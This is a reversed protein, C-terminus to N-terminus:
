LLVTQRERDKRVSPIKVLNRLSRKFPNRKRPTASFSLKGNPFVDMMSLHIIRWRRVRNLEQNEADTTEIFTGTGPTTDHFHRSSMNEFWRCCQVCRVRTFQKLDGHVKQPFNCAPCYTTSESQRSSLAAKKLLAMSIFMGPKRSNRWDDPTVTKGNENENLIDFAQAAVLRHEPQNEFCMMILMKLKDWTDCVTYDFVFNRELADMFKIPPYDPNWPVLSQAVSNKEIRILAESMKGVREDIRSTIQINSLALLVQISNAHQSIDNFCERAGLKMTNWEWKLRVQKIQFWPGVDPSLMGDYKQTMDDFASLAQFCSGLHNNIANFLSAQFCGPNLNLNNQAQVLTIGVSQRMMKLSQYDAKSGTSEQLSNFARVALTTIALFDGVGYGFSM